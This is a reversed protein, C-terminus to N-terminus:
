QMAEKVHYIGRETMGVSDAIALPKIGEKIMKCVLEARTRQKEGRLWGELRENLKKKTTVGGVVSEPIELTTIIRGDDTRYRRWKMAGRKRTELCKM